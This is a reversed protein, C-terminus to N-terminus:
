KDLACLFDYSVEYSGNMRTSQSFEQIQEM